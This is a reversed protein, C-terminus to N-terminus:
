TRRLQFKERVLGTAHDLHRTDTRSDRTDSCSSTAAVSMNSEEGPVVIPIELRLINQEIRSSMDQERIESQRFFTRPQGRRFERCRLSM